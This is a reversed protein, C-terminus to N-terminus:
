SNVVGTGACAKCVENGANSSGYTPQYKTVQYFGAPVVGHGDCVPCVQKM